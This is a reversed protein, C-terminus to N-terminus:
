TPDDTPDDEPTQDSGPLYQPYAPQGEVFGCETYGYMSLRNKGAAVAQSVTGEVIPNTELDGRALAPITTGEPYEACLHWVSGGKVWYVSSAGTYAMVIASDDDIQETSPPNWDISAAGVVLAAIIGVIGAITKQNKDMDKNLFILVILPVFAIITIIAGLQNQIFFRAKNKKSAPDFRNAKKWLMSGALALVGIVVIAAILWVMFNNMEARKLLWFITFLEAGIALAWLVIAIIRFTTAKSKAEPSAVFKEGPSQKGSAPAALPEAKVIKKTAM